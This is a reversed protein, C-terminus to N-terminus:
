ALEELLAKAEKLHPIDFGETFWGYVPAFLEYADRRRDEGYWLRALALAARLEGFRASQQRAVELARHLGKEAGAADRMGLLLMGRLRHVKAEPWNEGTREIMDEAQALLHLAQESQGAGGYIEAAVALWFPMVVGCGTEGCGALGKLLLEIAEDVRGLMALSWGRMVNGFALWLAFGQDISIALVEDASRL